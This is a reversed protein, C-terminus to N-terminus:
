SSSSSDDESFHLVDNTEPGDSDFDKSEVDHPKSAPTGTGEKTEDEEDKPPPDDRSKSERPSKDTEKADPPDHVSDNSESAPDSPKFTMQAPQAPEKADAAQNPNTEPAAAANLLSRRPALLLPRNTSLTGTPSTDSRLDVTDSTNPDKTPSEASKTLIKDRSDDVTDYTTPKKVPSAVSQRLSVDDNLKWNLPIRTSSSPSLSARHSVSAPSGTMKLQRVLEWKLAKMREERERAESKLKEAEEQATTVSTQLEDIKVQLLRKEKSRNREEFRQVQCGHHLHIHTLFKSPLGLPWRTSIPFVWSASVAGQRASIKLLLFWLKSMQIFNSCLELTLKAHEPYYKEITLALAVLSAVPIALGIFPLGAATLAGALFPHEVAEERTRNYLDAVYTRLVAARKLQRKDTRSEQRGSERAKNEKLPETDEDEQLEEITIRNGRDGDRVKRREEDGLSTFLTQGADLLKQAISLSLQAALALEDKTITSLAHDMTTCMSEAFLMMNRVNEEDSPVVLATSAGGARTALAGDSEHGDSEGNDLLASSTQLAELVKADAQQVHYCLERMQEPDQLIAGVNRGVSRLSQQTAAVASALGAAVDEEDLQQVAANADACTQALLDLFTANAAANERASVPASPPSIGDQQVSVCQQILLEMAQAQARENEDM